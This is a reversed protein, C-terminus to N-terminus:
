TPVETKASEKAVTGQAFMARVNADAIERPIGFAVVMQNVMDTLAKEPDERLKLVGNIEALKRSREANKLATNIYDLAVSWGSIEEGKSTKYSLAKVVDEPKAEDALKPFTYTFETVKGESDKTKAKLEYLKVDVGNKVSSGVEKPATQKPM